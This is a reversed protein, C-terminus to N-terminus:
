LTLTQIKHKAIKTCDECHPPNPLTGGYPIWFGEIQVSNQSFILKLNPKPMHFIEVLQATMTYPDSLNTGALGSVKMALFFLAVGFIIVFIGAALESTRSKM